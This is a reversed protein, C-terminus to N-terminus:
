MRSINLSTMNPIKSSHFMQVISLFLEKWDMYPDTILLSTKNQGKSDINYLPLYQNIYYNELIALDSDNNIEKYDIKNISQYCVTPLHNHQRLRETLAKTTKGVYIINNEIDLFRYLFGM